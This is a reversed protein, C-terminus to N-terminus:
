RVPIIQECIVNLEEITASTELELTAQSLGAAEFSEGMYKLSLGGDGLLDLYTWANYESADSAFPDDLVNGADDMAITLCSRRYGLDQLMTGPMDIFTTGGSILKINDILQSTKDVGSDNKANFLFGRYLSDVPLQIQFRSQAAVDTETIQFVRNQSFERPKELGQEWGAIKLVPDTTFAAGTASTIDGVDGWLVEMRFGALRTTDLLTDRVDYGGLQWFPICLVRRVTASASGAIGAALSSRGWNQYKFANYWLLQEGTLQFLVQNNNAVLRLERIVGFEDGSMINADSVAQGSSAAIVCSLELQLERLYAGMDLDVFNRQNARYTLQPYRRMLTRVAM